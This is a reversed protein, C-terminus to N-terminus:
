LQTTHIRLDIFRMAIDHNDTCTITVSSKCKHQQYQPNHVSNIKNFQKVLNKYFNDYRQDVYTLLQYSVIVTRASDKTLDLYGRTWHALHESSASPVLRHQLAGESQLVTRTSLSEPGRERVPHQPILRHHQQQKMRSRLRNDEWGSIGNCLYLHWRRRPGM